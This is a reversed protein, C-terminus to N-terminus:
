ESDHKEEEVVPEDTTAKEKFREEICEDILKDTSEIYENLRKDTADTYENLRKDTAELRKDTAELRKDTADMYENHRKDTADLRKDMKDIRELLGMLVSNDVARNNDVTRNNDSGTNGQMDIIYQEIRGLRLTILAIADSVSIKNFPVDAAAAKVPVSNQRQPPAPPAPTEAARRNRAAAISRSSSM